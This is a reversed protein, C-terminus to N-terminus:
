RFVGALAWLCFLTNFLFLGAQSNKQWLGFSLGAGIAPITFAWFDIM